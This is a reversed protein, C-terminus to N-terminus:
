IMNVRDPPQGIGRWVDMSPTIPLPEGRESARRRAERNSAQEARSIPLATGSIWDPASRQVKLIEIVKSTRAAPWGLVDALSQVDLFRIEGEHSMNAGRVEFGLGPRNEVSDLIPGPHEGAPWVRLAAKIVEQTSYYRKHDIEIM